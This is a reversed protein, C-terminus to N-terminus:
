REIWRIPPTTIKDAAEWDWLWRAILAPRSWHLRRKRGGLGAAYRPNLREQGAWWGEQGKGGGRENDGKRRAAWNIKRRWRGGTIASALSCRTARADMTISSLMVWKLCNTFRKRGETDAKSRREVMKWEKGVKKVRVREGGDYAAAEDSDRGGRGRWRSAGECRRKSRRESDSVNGGAPYEEELIKTQGEWMGVHQRGWPARAVSSVCPRLLSPWLFCGAYESLFEDTSLWSVFALSSGARPPLPPNQRRQLRRLHHRLAHRRCRLLSSVKSRLM